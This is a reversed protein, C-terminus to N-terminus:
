SNAHSSQGGSSDLIHVQDGDALADPPSDVIRDNMSLGTAIEVKSGFDRAIKVVRLRVRGDGDVVAVTMGQPRFMLASAPVLVSSGTNPLSFTVQTYAGPKLLGDSNDVVLQVLMSGTTDSLSQSTNLLTAQFKRDPYEPLVLTATIGAKIDASFNQPVHVYVRMKKADAVTFLPRAAATGSVILAGIDTSRSTVVGDFPAVIRRFSQLTRLRDVDAQAANAMARRVALDSRKTEADQKSVADQAVLRGWRQATTEALRLQAQATALNATAAAVQLDVDPTDIEALVQGAKVPTGIDAYWAKLYGNTRAYVPAQSWAEISAPLSLPRQAGDVSPRLVSVTPMAQEATWSKLEQKAFLRTMMGAGVVVVVVAIGILGARRLKRSDRAALKVPEHM